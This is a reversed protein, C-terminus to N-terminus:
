PLGQPVAPRHRRGSAPERLLIEEARPTLLRDSYIRSKVAALNGAEFPPWSYGRTPKLEALRAQDRTASAAQEKRRERFRRRRQAGTLPVKRTM